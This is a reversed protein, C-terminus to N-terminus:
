YSGQGAALYIILEEREKPATMCQSSGRHTEEDTQISNQSGSDMPFREEKHLEKPNQLIVTIKLKSNQNPYGTNYADLSADQSPNDRLSVRVKGLEIRWYPYLCGTSM